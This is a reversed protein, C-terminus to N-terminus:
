NSLMPVDPFRRYMQDIPIQDGNRPPFTNNLERILVTPRSDATVMVAEHTPEAPQSVHRDNGKRLDTKRHATICVTVSVVTLAFFATAVAIKRNM